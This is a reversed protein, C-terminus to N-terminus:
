FLCYYSSRYVISCTTICATRSTLYYATSMGIVHDDMCEYISGGALLRLTMAVQYEVPITGNRLLGMEEDRKLAPRLLDVLAMFGDYGMRFRMSFTHDQLM